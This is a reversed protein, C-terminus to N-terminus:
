YFSPNPTLAGSGEGNKAVAPQATTYLESM